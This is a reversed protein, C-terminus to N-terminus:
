KLQELRRKAVEATPANPAAEIARNLAQATM